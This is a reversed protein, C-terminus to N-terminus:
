VATLAAAQGDDSRERRRELRRSGPLVLLAVIV